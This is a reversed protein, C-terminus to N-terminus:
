ERPVAAYSCSLSCLPRSIIIRPNTHLIYLYMNYTGDVTRLGTMTSKITQYKQFVCGGTGDPTNYDNGFVKLDKRRGVAVQAIYPMINNPIGKPDEGIKGSEHAGVPNFYRLSIVSWTEDSKVLDKLIEEVFYKSKGYPNTCGLGTPHDETLPLKQPTGYVTASSSYVIKKVNHAKM